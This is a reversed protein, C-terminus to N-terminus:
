TYILPPVFSLFNLETFIIKFLRIMPSVRKEKVVYFVMITSLMCAHFVGTCTQPLLTIFHFLVHTKLNFRSQFIM